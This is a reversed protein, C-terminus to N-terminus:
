YLALRRCSRLCLALEWLAGGWQMSLLTCTRLLTRAHTDHVNTNTLSLSFSFFLSLKPIHTHERVICGKWYVVMCCQNLPFLFSSTSEIKPEREGQIEIEEEFEPLAFELDVDGPAARWLCMRRLLLTEDCSPFSCGWTSKFNTSAGRFETYVGSLFQFLMLNGRASLLMRSLCFWIMLYHFLDYSLAAMRM